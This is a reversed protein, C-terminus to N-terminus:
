CDLDSFQLGQKPRGESGKLNILDEHAQYIANPETCYNLDMCCIEM